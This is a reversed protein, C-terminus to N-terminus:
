KQLAISARPFAAPALEARRTASCLGTNGLALWSDGPFRRMESSQSGAQFAFNDVM